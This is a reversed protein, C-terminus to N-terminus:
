ECLKKLKKNNISDCPTFKILQENKYEGIGSVEKCFMNNAQQNCEETYYKKYTQSKVTDVGYSILCDNFYKNLSITDCITEKTLRLENKGSEFVIMSKFGSILILLAFLTFIRKMSIIKVM